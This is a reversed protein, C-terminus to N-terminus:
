GGGNRTAVKYFSKLLTLVEDGRDDRRLAELSERTLDFAAAPSAAPTQASAVITNLTSASVGFAAAGAFFRRRSAPNALISRPMADAHNRPM